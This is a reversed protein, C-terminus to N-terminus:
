LEVICYWHRLSVHGGHYMPRSASAKMLAPLRTGSAIIRFSMRSLSFDLRQTEVWDDMESGLGVCGELSGEADKM